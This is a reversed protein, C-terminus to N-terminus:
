PCPQLSPYLVTGVESYEDIFQLDGVAIFSVADWVFLLTQKCISMSLPTETDKVVGTLGQGKRKRKETSEIGWYSPFV